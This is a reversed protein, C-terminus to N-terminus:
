KMPVTKEEILSEQFKLTKAKNFEFGKKEYIEKLTKIKERNDLQKWNRNEEYLEKQYFSDIVKYVQEDKTGTSKSLSDIQIIKNVIEFKATDKEETTGNSIVDTALISDFKDRNYYQKEWDKSKEVASDLEKQKAMRKKEAYMYLLVIGTVLLATTLFFTIRGNRKLRKALREVEAKQSEAEERLQMEMALRYQEKLEENRKKADEALQLKEKERDKVLRIREEERKKREEAALRKERAKVIPEVLTDHTLEYTLGKATPEERLLRTNVIEEILAESFGFNYILKHKSIGERQGGVVLEDEMLRRAKERDKIDKIKGLQTQYFKGLIEPFDVKPIIVNSNVEISVGEGKELVENRVQQEIYNCVIQLQSSEIENSKGSLEKVIEKLTTEEFSFPPVYASGLDPKAAPEKIAQEAQVPTLPNLEYRNRLATPIYSVMSQMQALRDSRLAFVIKIAPQRCWNIDEETREELEIATIWDLIRYPTEDHVIEAFQELFEKQHEVPHLFFEEFQDLIFVPSVSKIFQQPSEGSAAGTNNNMWKTLEPNSEPSVLNNFDTAKIYEWLKPQGNGKNRMKEAVMEASGSFSFIFNSILQNQNPFEQNDKTNFNLRVRIPLYGNRELQPSVGATLLSSKGLGSRGFLVVMKELRVQNYLEKKEKDRGFFITSQGKDFPFLGPYRDKNTSRYQM